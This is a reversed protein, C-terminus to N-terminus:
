SGTNRGATSGAGAFHGFLWDRHVTPVCFAFYKGKM